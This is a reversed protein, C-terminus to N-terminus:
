LFDLYIGFLFPSLVAGQKVGNKMYFKESIYGNWIVRDSNLKYMNAIIRILLHCINRKRLCKFLNYYDRFINLGLLLTLQM